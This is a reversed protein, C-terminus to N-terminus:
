WQSVVTDPDLVQAQFLIFSEEEYKVGFQNQHQLSSDETIKQLLLLFSFIFTIEFIGYFFWWSKQITITYM